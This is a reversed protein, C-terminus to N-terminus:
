LLGATGLLEVGGERVLLGGVGPGVLMGAVVFGVVVPVRARQALVPVLLTLAFLLAFVAGADSLPLSPLHFAMILQDSVPDGALGVGPIGSSIADSRGGDM